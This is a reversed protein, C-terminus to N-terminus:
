SAAQQWRNSETGNDIIALLRQMSQERQATLKARLAVSRDALERQHGLAEALTAAMAEPENRCFLAGGSFRSRLAPLDSLVLPRSLGVAEFAARNMIRPDTSFVAVVESALLERLFLPYRLYGTFVVNDPADSRIRGTLQDPDGTFHFRVSPLFKAAEIAEAVPENEDLSGAVVVGSPSRDAPAAETVDPLDDPVLLARAGWEAVLRELEETHLLAVAARKLLWRHLPRAWAWKNSHFASTHCDVVLQRQHVFCWLWGILPAFVPPTIVLVTRPNVRSMARWARVSKVLYAVPRAAAHPGVLGDDLFRAQGGLAAALAATRPQFRSWAMALVDPRGM